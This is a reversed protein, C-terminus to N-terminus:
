VLVLAPLFGLESFGPLLDQEKGNVLFVLAPVNEPLFDAEQKYDPIEPFAQVKPFVVNKVFEILVFFATSIKRWGSKKHGLLLM